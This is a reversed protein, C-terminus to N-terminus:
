GWHCCCAQSQLGINALFFPIQQQNKEKRKESPFIYPAKAITTSPPSSSNNILAPTCCHLNYSHIGTRCATNPPIQSVDAIFKPYFPKPPKYDGGTLNEHRLNTKALTCQGQETQLFGLVAESLGKGDQERHKKPVSCKGRHSEMLVYM